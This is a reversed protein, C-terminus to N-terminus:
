LGQHELSCFLSLGLPSPQQIGPMPDQQNQDQSLGAEGRNYAETEGISSLGMKSPGPLRAWNLSYLWM